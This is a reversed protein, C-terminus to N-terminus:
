QRSVHSPSIRVRPYKFIHGIQDIWSVAPNPVCMANMPIADYFHTYTMPQSSDITRIRYCTLLAILPRGSIPAYNCADLQMNMYTSFADITFVHVFKLPLKSWAITNQSKSLTQIESRPANLQQMVYRTCNRRGISSAHSQAKCQIPM